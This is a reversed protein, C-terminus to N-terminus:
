DHEPPHESVAGRLIGVAYMSCDMRIAESSKLDEEMQELAQRQHQLYYKLTERSKEQVKKFKAALEAAETEAAGTRARMNRLNSKAEQCCCGDVTRFFNKVTEPDQSM